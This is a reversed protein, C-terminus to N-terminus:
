SKTKKSIEKKMKTLHGELFKLFKNFKDEPILSIMKHHPPGSIIMVNDGPEIELARRAEVPIVIQGKTGVTAKGFFKPTGRM